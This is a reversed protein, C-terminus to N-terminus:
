LVGSLRACVVSQVKERQHDAVSEVGVSEAYQCRRDVGVCINGTGPVTGCGDSPVSALLCEGM